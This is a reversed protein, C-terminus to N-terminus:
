AKPAPASRAMLMVGAQDATDFYVFGSRDARQGRILVDLGLATGEAAAADVDHDFGLTLAGPGHEDLLRRHPFDRASPQCLQLQLDGLAAARYRLLHFAEDDPSQLTELDGFPPVHVWPGIGVSEYFAQTADLDEVVIGVHHLRRFPGTGEPRAAPGTGQRTRRALLVVGAREATDFYVFGSGDERQGRMLPTVGSQAALDVASAVDHEFGLHFVGPGHTDLFRRQPCDLEPPQCLQLQLNDLETVRYSMQHFATPNPVHLDTYETLPPYESWPGIGISEYFAQAADIDPVVLCVHHPQHFPADM